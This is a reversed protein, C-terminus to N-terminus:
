LYLEIVIAIFPGDIYPYICSITKEDIEDATKEDLQNYDAKEITYIHKEDDWVMVLIDGDIEVNNLLERLTM